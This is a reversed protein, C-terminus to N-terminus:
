SSESQKYAGPSQGIVSKFDKILHAQDFYGLQVALEAWQPTDDQELKEAVEQLRFRKIVWKPSVGIYKRFLRQLQRISLNNQESIQEVKIINRDNIIEMVIAGALEAQENYEPLRELLFIEAQKAMSADDEADLVTDAYADVDQGFLKSAPITAGTLLSVDQQWFPYFGGAKFKVGLVRGAGQLKRVFPTTPVGYLLARRGKEDEEFVFHINPYSLVTQTYPNDEQLDYRVVWYHEVFPKLKTDPEFRSLTFKDKGAAAHLIGRTSSSKIDKM